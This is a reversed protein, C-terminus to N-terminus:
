GHSFGKLVDSWFTRLLPCSVLLHQLTEQSSCYLCLDSDTIKMKYLLVRHPLINHIIKFQFISLKTEKTMRFSLSDIKNIRDLENFGLRRLRNNALPEKLYNGQFQEVILSKKFSPM